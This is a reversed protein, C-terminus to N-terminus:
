ESPALYQQMRHRIEDSWPVPRGTEMHVSVLVPTATMRLEDRCRAEIHLHASTRGLKTVILSWSLVDGMKSPATFEAGISVTPVGYGSDLHMQSFSHKLGVEHWEEVTQNVMEFYRPYFVIGAPDCHQFLVKITHEFIQAM